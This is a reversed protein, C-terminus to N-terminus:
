GSKTWVYITGCPSSILSAPSEAGDKYIEIAGIDRPPISRLVGMAGENAGARLGSGPDELAGSLPVGDLVVAMGSPCGAGNITQTGRTNYIIERGPLGVVILGAVRRFVDVTEIPNEKAIQDGAIYTGIGTRVRDAVGPPLHVLEGSAAQVTVRSLTIPFPQLVADISVIDSPEVMVSVSLPLLGMRRFRILHPGAPISDIRFAGSAASRTTILPNDVSVVEVGRMWAGTTDRVSGDIAGWSVTVPQDRQATRQAQLNMGPM